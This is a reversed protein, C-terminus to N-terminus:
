KQTFVGDSPYCCTVDSAYHHVAHGMDILCMSKPQIIDNNNIYHLTAPNVGCACILNYPAIKCNYNELCYSKFVSELCGERIGPKCTRMAVVHAESTIQSALRMM